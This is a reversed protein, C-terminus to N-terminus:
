KSAVCFVNRLDVALLVYQPSILKASNCTIEIQMRFTELGLLRNM